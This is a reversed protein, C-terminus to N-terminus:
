PAHFGFVRRCWRQHIRRVHRLCATFNGETYWCGLSSCSQYLVAGRIVDHRGAGDETETHRCCLNYTDYSDILEPTLASDERVPALLASRAVSPVVFKANNFEADMQAHIPRIRICLFAQQRKGYCM